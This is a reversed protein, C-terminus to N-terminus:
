PTEVRETYRAVFLLGSLIPEDYIGGVYVTGAPGPRIWLVEDGQRTVVQPIVRTWLRHGPVAAEAPSAIIPVVVAVLVLAVVSALLLHRFNMVVEGSCGAAQAV